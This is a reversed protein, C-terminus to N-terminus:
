TPSHQRWLGPSQPESDDTVLISEWPLSQQHLHSSPPGQHLTLFSGLHGAVTLSPVSFDESGHSLNIVHGRMWLLFSSCLLFTMQWSSVAPSPRLLLWPHTRPVLASGQQERPGWSGMPLLVLHSGLLACCHVGLHIGDPVDIWPCLNGLGHAGPAFM